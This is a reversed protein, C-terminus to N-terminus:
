AYPFLLDVDVDVHPRGLILLALIVLMNDFAHITNVIISVDAPNHSVTM